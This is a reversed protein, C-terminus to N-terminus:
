GNRLKEFREYNKALQVRAAERDNEGTRPNEIIALNKVINRGWARATYDPEHALAAAFQQRTM